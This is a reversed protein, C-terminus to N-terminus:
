GFDCPRARVKGGPLLWARASSRQRRISRVLASVVSVGPGAERLQGLLDERPQFAPPAQPVNGVVIPQDPAPLQNIIVDRGALYADRGPNAGGFNNIQSSSSSSSSGDGVQLAQGDVRM